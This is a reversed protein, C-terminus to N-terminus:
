LQGSKKKSVYSMIKNELVDLPIGGQGLVEDHFERIDFQPGLRAKAKERLELIKLQGIKYSTAQGPMVFYREIGKASTERSSPSNAMLYDIAKERSWKYHHIGTDVVLRCARWIEMSLRGFDSYPDQYFGIEKPILESYLGWGETYATYRALKRFKPLNQIEMAMSIQMHHGPIAEHYALAEMEYKAVGKMDHLNVYYIGPRSGDLAPGQYFAMGASKERFAEVPRVKIKAKPKTIFLTDLKSKMNAILENTKQLYAARGAKTNQYYFQQDEKIFRFFDQLSGKFGVTKMIKKMETQIRAVEKLGVKHIEPASMTTTTMKSLRDKYYSEGDPHAWAGLNEPSRKKLATLHQILKTYAPKVSVLLAREAEKLMEQKKKKSLKLKEIKTSFDSYLTSKTKVSEFPYGSIINQSDRIVKDFSFNPMKIGRKEQEKLNVILQNFSHNFANLRSVYAQAETENAIQHMNIMFSPLRSHHGFMQSVFYGHYFYKFEEIERQANKKFLRYSLQSQEDLADFNFTALTKLDQRTFELDKKAYEYSIDNLEDYRERGGLYTIFTPYRQVSKDFSNAFFANLKASEAKIQEPTYSKKSFHSCSTSLLLTFVFLTLRQFYPTMSNEKHCLHSNIKFFM